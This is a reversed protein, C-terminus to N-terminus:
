AARLNVACEAGQPNKGIEYSLRRDTKPTKADGWTVASKEFHLVANGNEPQISGVGKIEDFNKITGFLMILEKSASSVPM